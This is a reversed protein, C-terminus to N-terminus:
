KQSIRRRATEMLKERDESPEIERKGELVLRQLDSRDIRPYEAALKDVVYRIEYPEKSVLNRDRSQDHQPTTKMDPCVTQRFLRQPLLAEFM